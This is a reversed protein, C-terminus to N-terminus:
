YVPYRIIVIGSGGTGSGGIGGGSGGVLLYEITGTGATATVNYSVFLDRWAFM